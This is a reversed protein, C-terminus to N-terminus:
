KLKPCPYENTRPADQNSNARAIGELRDKGSGIAFKLGQGIRASGVRVRERGM